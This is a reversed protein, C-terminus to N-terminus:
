DIKDAGKNLINHFFRPLWVLLDCILEIFYVLFFWGVFYGITYNFGVVESLYESWDFLWDPLYTALNGMANSFYEGFTKYYNLLNDSSQLMTDTNEPLHAFWQFIIAFFCYLIPASAFMFWFITSIKKYIKKNDM